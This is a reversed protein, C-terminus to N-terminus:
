VTFERVICDPCQVYDAKSNYDYCEPRGSFMRKERRLISWVNIFFDVCCIPYGSELGCWFISNKDITYEM